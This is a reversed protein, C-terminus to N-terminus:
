WVAKRAAQQCCKGAVMRTGFSGGASVAGSLHPTMELGPLLCLREAQLLQEFLCSHRPRASSNKLCFSTDLFGTRPPLQYPLRPLLPTLHPHSRHAGQSQRTQLASFVLWAAQVQRRHAPTSATAPISLRTGWGVRPRQLQAAAASPNRTADGYGPGHKRHHPSIGRLLRTQWSSLNQAFM